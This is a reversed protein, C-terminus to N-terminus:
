KNPQYWDWNQKSLEKHLNEFNKNAQRIGAEVQGPTAHGKSIIVSKALLRGDPTTISAHDMTFPESLQPRPRSSPEVIDTSSHDCCSAFINGGGTVEQLLEEDLVQQDEQSFTQQQQSEKQNAMAPEKRKKM